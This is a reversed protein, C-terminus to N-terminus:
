TSDLASDDFTSRAISAAAAFITFVQKLNM